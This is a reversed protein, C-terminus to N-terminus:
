KIGILKHLQPVFRAKVGHKALTGQWALVQEINYVNDVPQLWVQNIAYKKFLAASIAVAEDDKTSLPLKVYTQAQKLLGIASLLKDAHKEFDPVHTKLDVSIYDFNAAVELLQRPDYGSTELFFQVDKHLLKAMEALFSPYLLPEGGTFSISHYCTLDYTARIAAAVDSASAPNALMQNGIAFSPQATHDTDCYPCSLPCGSVRVFLQRSGIYRGEGQISDFVEVISAQM